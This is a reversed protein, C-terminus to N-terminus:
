APGAKGKGTGTAAADTSYGGVASGTFQAPVSVTQSIRVKSGNTLYTQGAVVVRSGARLGQVMTDAGNSLSAVVNVLRVQRTATVLFVQDHGNITVLAATPIIVANKQTQTTIRVTAFEGPKVWSPPHPLSLYVTFALAAANSAPSVAQVRASLASPAGPITVTANQGPNILALNQQSLSAQVELQPSELTAVSSGPGVLTGVPLPLSTIIGSFPAVLTDRALQARLVAMAAQAQSVSAKLVQVTAASSPVETQQLQAQAAQVNAQAANVANQFQQLTQQASARDNYTAQAAALAAQASQVATASVDEQAQAQQLAAQAAQIGLANSSQTAALQNEAGQLNAQDTAVAKQEQLIAQQDNQVQNQEAQITNAATQAQQAITQDSSMTAQYPNTGTGTWSEYDLVAQQFKAEDAPYQAALTGYISQDQALTNQAAGLSSQANALATEDAKLQDQDAAIVDPLTNASSTQAAAQAQQVKVEAAAVAAQAVHYAAQDQQLQNQAAVLAQQQPARDQYNALATQYQSQAGKLAVVAKEVAAQAVAVAQPTPGATAADVKAQATAVAAAAEALQAQGVANGLTAITQGQNVQQGLHVDVQALRGTVLPALDISGQAQVIGSLTLTSSVTGSRATAVSVTTLAAGKHHHSAQAHHGIAIATAAIGLSLTGAATYKVRGPIM